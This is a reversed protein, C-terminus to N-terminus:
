DFPSIFPFSFMKMAMLNRFVTFFTNVSYLADVLGWLITLLSWRLTKHAINTFRWQHYYYRAARNFSSSKQNENEDWSRIAMQKGHFRARLLDFEIFIDNRWLYRLIPNQHLIKRFLQKRCGDYMARYIQSFARVYYCVLCSRVFLM